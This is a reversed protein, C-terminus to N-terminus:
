CLLLICVGDQLSTNANSRFYMPAGSSFVMSRSTLVVASPGLLYLVPHEVAPLPSSEDYQITNYYNYRHLHLINLYIPSPLALVKSARGTCRGQAQM